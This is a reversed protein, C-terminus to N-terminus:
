AQHLKRRAARVVLTGASIALLALGVLVAAGSAGTVPLEGGAEDGEGTVTVEVSLVRVGGSASEGSAVIMHTGPEVSSPITVTATFAGSADAETSGLSIPDSQLEFSITAGPAFGDGSITVDGGPVVSTTSVSLPATESPYEQALAATPVLAVAVATLLLTLARM